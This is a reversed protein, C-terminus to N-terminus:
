AEATGNEKQRNANGMKFFFGEIKKIRLGAPQVKEYAFDLTDFRRQDVSFSLVTVLLPRVVVFGIEKEAGPSYTAHINLAVNGSASVANLYTFESTPGDHAIIIIAAIICTFIDKSNIRPASWSYPVAFRNGPDIYVGSDDNVANLSTNETTSIPFALTTPKSDLVNLPTMGCIGLVGILANQIHIIVELHRFGQESM